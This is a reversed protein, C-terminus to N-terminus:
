KFLSFSLPNKDCCQFCINYFDGDHEKHRTCNCCVTRGCCFCRNSSTHYENKCGQFHKKDTRLLERLKLANKVPKTLYM